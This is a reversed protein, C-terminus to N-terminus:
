HQLAYLPFLHAHASALILRQAKPSTQFGLPVKAAECTFTVGFPLQQFGFERENVFRSEMKIKVYLVALGDSTKEKNSSPLWVQMSPMEDNELSM